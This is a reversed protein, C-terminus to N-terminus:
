FICRGVERRRRRRRAAPPLHLRRGRRVCIAATRRDACGRAGCGAAATVTPRGSTAAAAAKAKATATKKRRRATATATSSGAGIPPKQNATAATQRESGIKSRLAVGRALFLPCSRGSRDPFAASSGAPRRRPAPELHRRRWSLCITAPPQRRRRRREWPSAGKSRRSCCSRPRRPRAPRCKRLTSPLRAGATGDGAPRPRRPRPRPGTTTAARPRDTPSCGTRAQSPNKNRLPALSLCLRFCQSALFAGRRMKGAFFRM